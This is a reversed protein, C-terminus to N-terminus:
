GYLARGADLRREVDGPPAALLELLPGPDRSAIAELTFVRFVRAAHHLSRGLRPLDILGKEGAPTLRQVEGDRRCLLLRLQLIDTYSPYDVFV